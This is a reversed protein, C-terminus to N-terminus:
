NGTISACIKQSKKCLRVEESAYLSQLPRIIGQWLWTDVCKHTEGQLQPSITCHGLNVPKGMMMQITHKIHDCFRLDEYQLLFVEPNDYIIDM